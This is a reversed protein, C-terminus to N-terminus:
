NVDKVIELLARSIVKSDCLTTADIYLVISIPLKGPGVRRTLKFLSVVMRLVEFSATGTPMRTSLRRSEKFSYFQCGKLLEDALLERLVVEVRHKFFRVDQVGDGELWMDLIDM